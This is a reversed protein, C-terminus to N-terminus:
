PLQLGEAHLMNCLSILPLGILANPDDGEIRRVLTIGLGEIRASGACDYPEEAKLYRRIEADDYDRMHVVMTVLDSQIRASRANLLCLATHFSVAKGRMVKLQRAANEYTEPKCLLTDDVVAVQDCGIILASPHRAQVARAKTCALRLAMSPPAEDGLPREDVDPAVIEFDLHLRELLERRYKSSSALILPADSSVRGSTKHMAHKQLGSERAWRPQFVQM